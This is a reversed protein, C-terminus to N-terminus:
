FLGQLQLAVAMDGSVKLKGMMFAMMANLNGSLLDKFDAASIDIGCDAEKDENTVKGDPYLYISGDETKFHVSKGIGGKQTALAQIKDTLEQLIM